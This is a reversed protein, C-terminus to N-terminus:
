AFVDLTGFHEPSATLLDALDIMQDNIFCGAVNRIDDHAEAPEHAEAVLV